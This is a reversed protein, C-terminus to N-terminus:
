ANSYQTSRDCNANFTTHPSRIAKNLETTKLKLNNATAPLYRAQFHVSLLADLEPGRLDEQESFDKHMAKYM